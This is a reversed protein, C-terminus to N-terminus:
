LVTALLDALHSYLDCPFLGAGEEGDGGGVGGRVCM